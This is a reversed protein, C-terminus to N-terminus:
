NPERAPLLQPSPNPYQAPRAGGSPTARPFRPVSWICTVDPQAAREAQNSGQDRNADRGRAKGRSRDRTTVLTPPILMPTARAFCPDCGASRGLALTGRRVRSTSTTDVTIATRATAGAPAPAAPGGG